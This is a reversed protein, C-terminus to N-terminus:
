RRTKLLMINFITSSIWCIREKKVRFIWRNLKKKLVIQSASFIEHNLMNLYNCCQVKSPFFVSIVWSIFSRIEPRACRAGVPWRRGPAGRVWRDGGGPRVACGGTVEARACRAGVPWRRRRTRKITCLIYPQQTKRPKLRQSMRSSDNASWGKQFFYVEQSDWNGRTWRVGDCGWDCWWCRPAWPYRRYVGGVDHSRTRILTALVTGGFVLLSRPQHRTVGVHGCPHPKGDAPM